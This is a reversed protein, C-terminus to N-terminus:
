APIGPEPGPGSSHERVWNGYAELSLSVPLAVIEPVDYSHQTQVVECVADFAADTSKILLLWETARHVEDKWRYVSAIPGLCQVCSALRLTVLERALREATESDPVAVRVEVLRPTTQESM